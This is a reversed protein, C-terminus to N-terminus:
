RIRRQASFFLSYEYSSPPHCPSVLEKINVVRGELHSDDDSPGGYPNTAFLHITRKRTGVGIWRGDSAWDLSEVLGSTRGRKLDYIHSPANLQREAGSAAHGSSGRRSRGDLHDLGAYTSPTPRLKFVKMTQGDKFAVLLSTGDDSFTIKSVPQDRKVVFEAVARPATAGYKLPGLDYVTISYGGKPHPREERLSPSDPLQGTHGNTPDSAASLPELYPGGSAAPASRSYFKGPAPPSYNTTSAQTLDGSIAATVGARAATFAMGGLVKMGSLVSGGIKMAANGLEAQSMPLKLASDQQVEPLASRPTRSSSQKTADPTVPISAFALLRNHYAFIPQPIASTHLYQTSSQELHRSSTVTNNNTETATHAFPLIISSPVSYLTTFTSSSIIHLAQPQTTAQFLADFIYQM